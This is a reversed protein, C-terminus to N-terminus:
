SLGWAEFLEAAKETKSPEPNDASQAPDPRRAQSASVSDRLAVLADVSAKLADEDDGIVNQALTLPLGAEALLSEKTRVTTLKGLEDRASDADATRTQVESELETIRSDRTAVESLAADRESALTTKDSRLNQILTWAKEADFEGDEWPRQNSEGEPSKPDQPAAQAGNPDDTPDNPTTAATTDTM